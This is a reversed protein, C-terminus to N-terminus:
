LALVRGGPSAFLREPPPLIREGSAAYASGAEHWARVLDDQLREPEDAVLTMGAAHEFLLVPSAAMVGALAEVGPLFGQSQLTELTERFQRVPGDTERAREAGARLWAALRGM